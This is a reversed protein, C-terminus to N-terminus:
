RIELLELQEDLGAESGLLWPVVVLTRCDDPIGGSFSMRALLEPPVLMSVLWNVVAVAPHSAAVFLAILLTLDLPLPLGHLSNHAIVFTVAATITAIAGLYFMAPWRRLATAVRAEPPPSVELQKELAVRGRGILHHGVHRVRPDGTPSVAAKAAQVARQAVESESLRARQALTEVARRYLGRTTFDMQAYTQTPDGDLIRDVASVAEIVDSWNHRAVLRLSNICNAISVQDAAQARSEGDIVEAVSLDRQHLQQEAWTLALALSPHKGELLRYFEAVWAPTVAPVLRAMDAVYMLMGPADKGAKEILYGAWYEAGAYEELRRAITRAIAAVREIVAIRLLSPWAWLEALQLTIDQQYAALFRRAQEPEIRGDLHTVCCRAIGLMRPVSEGNDTARPLKRLERLSLNAALERLQTRILYFNDLLWEAAPEIRRQESCALRVAAYAHRLSNEHELLARKLDRLNQRTAAGYQQKALDRACTELDIARDLSPM